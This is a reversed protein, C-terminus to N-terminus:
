KLLENMRPLPQSLDMHGSLTEIEKGDVLIQVKQIEPFETLTNVVSGVLMEEGTSGGVFNKQLEKSFDVKAVKGSVTVQLLKAKKPFVNALGKKDTGAMLAEVAAQYKNDSDKVSKEVAVLGTANEDPYYVKINVLKAQPAAESAASGSGSSSSSSSSAIAADKTDAAGQQQEDCGALMVACLMSLALVLISKLKM